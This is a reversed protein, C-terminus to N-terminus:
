LLIKRMKYCPIGFSSVESGEDKFENRLYFSHSTKTSELHMEKLDLRKAEDELASLLAKGIGLFRAELCIYLLLIYGTKSLNAAGIISGKIEAVFFCNEESTVWSRVNEPTKNALWADIISQNGQHDAVCCAAISRRLVDCVASSDEAKAPRVQFDATKLDEKSMKM